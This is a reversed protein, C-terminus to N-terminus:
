AKGGPTKQRAGFLATGIRVMNSGEAIATRYDGSMGMSLIDIPCQAFLERAKEYLERLRAFYRRVEEEGVDPPICMLGRFRVGPLATITEIFPFLEGPLIGGKQQESGINVEVAIDQVTGNKVALRSIEQALEARDVSQIVAVKGIIYKVKNTQLQGILHVETGYEAFMPLKGVLEQVRSEGALRAGADLAERVRAEDVFKTVALVRVDEPKRGAERAASAVNEMIELYNERISM